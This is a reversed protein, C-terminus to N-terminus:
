DQRPWIIHYKLYNNSELLLSIVPFKIITVKSFNSMRSSTHRMIESFYGYSLHSWAVAESILGLLLSSPRCLEERHYLKRNTAGYSKLKASM